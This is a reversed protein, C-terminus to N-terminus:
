GIIDSEEVEGVLHNHLPDDVYEICYSLIINVMFSNDIYHGDSQYKSLTKCLTKYLKPFSKIAKQYHSIALEGNKEKLYREIIDLNNITANNNFRLFLKCKDWGLELKTGLNQIKGEYIKTLSFIIGAEKFHYLAKHFYFKNDLSNKYQSLKYCVKGLVRHQKILDVNNEADILNFRENEVKNLAKLNNYNTIQLKKYFDLPNIAAYYDKSNSNSKLIHQIIEQIDSSTMFKMLTPYYYFKIPTTVYKILDTAFDIQEFPEDLIANISKLCERYHISAKTYDNKELVWFNGAENHSYIVYLINIPSKYINKAATFACIAENLREENQPKIALWSLALGNYIDAFIKKSEDNLINLAEYKEVYLIAEKFLDIASIYNSNKFHKYGVENCFKIIKQLFNLDNPYLNLIKKLNIIADAYNKNQYLELAMAYGVTAINEKIILENPNYTLAINYYKIAQTYDHENYFKFAIAAYTTAINKIYKIDKPYQTLAKNFHIIAREYDMLKYFYIGIDNNIKANLCLNEHITNDEIDFKKM